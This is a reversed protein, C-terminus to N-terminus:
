ENNTDQDFKNFVLHNSVLLVRTRNVSHWQDNNNYRDLYKVLEM